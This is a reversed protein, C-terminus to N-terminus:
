SIQLINNKKHSVTRPSLILSMEEYTQKRKSHIMNILCLTLLINKQLKALSHKIIKIMSFPTNKAEGSLKEFHVQVGRANVWTNDVELTVQQVKKQSYIIYDTIFEDINIATKM